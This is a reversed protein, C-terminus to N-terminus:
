LALFFKKKYLVYSTFVWLSCSWMNMALLEEHSNTLPKWTWPFKGSCMEHGIYLLISNMGPYYLPSGSWFGYVDILLYMITLLFFAMSATAMIFSFSWLNKNIPIIGGHQSFGSLGGAILGSVLGWVVWRKVRSWWDEHVLLVRGAAVGFWCM